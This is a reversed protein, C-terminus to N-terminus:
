MDEQQLAASSARAQPVLYFVFLQRLKDVQALQQAAM